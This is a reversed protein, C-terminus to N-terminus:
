RAEPPEGPRLLPPENASQILADLGFFRSLSVGEVADDYQRIMDVLRPELQGDIREQVRERLREMRAPRLQIDNSYALRPEAAVALIAVLAQLGNAANEPGLQYNMTVQGNPRLTIADLDMREFLADNDDGKVIGVPESFRVNLSGLQPDSFNGNLRTRVDVRTGPEIFATADGDGLPIQQADHVSFSVGFAPNSDGETTSPKTAGAHGVILDIVSQIKDGLGPDAWPNYDGSRMEAPLRQALRSNLNNTVGDVYYGDPGTGEANATFQGTHFSFRVSNITPDPRWDVNYRMAPHARISFGGGNMTVFLRTGPDAQLGEGSPSLGDVLTTEFSVSSLARMVEATDLGEPRIARSLDRLAGTINEVQSGGPTQAAAVVEVPAGENRNAAGPTG